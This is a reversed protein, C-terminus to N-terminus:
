ANLQNITSDRFKIPTCAYMSSYEHDHEFVAKAIVACIEVKDKGAPPPGTDSNPRKANSYFLIPWDSPNSLLYEVLRNTRTPDAQWQIQFKPGADHGGTGAAGRTTGGSGRSKRARGRTMPGDYEMLELCFHHQPPICRAALRASHRRRRAAPM